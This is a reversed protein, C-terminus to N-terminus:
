RGAQIFGAVDFDQPQSGEEGKWYHWTEEQAAAAEPAPFQCFTAHQQQLDFVTLASVFFTNFDYVLSKAYPMPKNSDTKTQQVYARWLQGSHDYVETIPVLFSEADVYIVRLSFNYGPLLSRAAIVYTERPEWVDDFFFDTPKDGWKVPQHRARLPLLVTKKGLLQWDFWAPNGAFGAYSDLDVDQGFVGESRQATSLRRVRKTQPFYLWSDDQRAPDLYRTYSFGAGKLDFPENIPGLAERYRINDPTKMVPKPEVVCRGTYFLRRFHGVRYIREPQMGRRPDISGTICGFNHGDVDDFMIRQEFNFMVKIAADPDAETVAPFPIGAVFNLMRKKDKSLAVQAHYRETAEARPPELPIPRHEVIELKAGRGVSWSIAPTLVTKWEEANGADIITGPPPVGPEAVAPPALEEAAEPAASPQAAEEVQPVPAAEPEPAAKRPAAKPKAVPKPKPKPAPKPKSVVPQAKAPAAAPQIDPQPVAQQVVPPPQPAAPAEPQLPVPEVRPPQPVAEVEAPEPVEAPARTPAEVGLLRRLLELQERESAAKYAPGASGPAPSAEQAVVYPAVTWSVALLGALAPWIWWSRVARRTGSRFSKGERRERRRM